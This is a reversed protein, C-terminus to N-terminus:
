FDIVIGDIKAKLQEKIKVVIEQTVIKDRIEEDLIDNGRGDLRHWNRDTRYKHRTTLRSQELYVDLSLGM